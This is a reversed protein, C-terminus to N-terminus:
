HRRLLVGVRILFIRDPGSKDPLIFERVEVRVTPAHRLSLDLGAGVNFEFGIPGPFSVGADFFPDLGRRASRLPLHKTLGCSIVPPLLETGRAWYAGAEIELGGGSSSLRDWGM